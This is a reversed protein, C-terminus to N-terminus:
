LRFGDPLLDSLSSAVLEGDRRWIVRLQPAFEAMVQRCAGCPPASEAKAHVAIAALDSHGASVATFIATREACCTLGFSANEVNAGTFVQGGATLLAAGVPFRSYPAYANASAGRAREYLALDNDTLPM